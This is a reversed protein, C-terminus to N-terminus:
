SSLKFKELINEAMQGQGTVTNETHQTEAMHDDDCWQTWSEKASDYSSSILM